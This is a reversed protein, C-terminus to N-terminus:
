STNTKLMCRVLSSANWLHKSPRYTGQCSIESSYTIQGMRFWNFLEDCFIAGPGPIYGSRSYGVMPLLKNSLMYVALKFFETTAQRGGSLIKWLIVNIKDDHEVPMVACLHHIIPALEASVVSSPSPCLIPIMAEM